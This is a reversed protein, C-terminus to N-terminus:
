EFTTDRHSAAAASVLEVVGPNARGACSREDEVVMVAPTGGGFRVAAFLWVALLLNVSMIAHPVTWDQSQARRVRRQRYM